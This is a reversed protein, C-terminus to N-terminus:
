NEEKLALRLASFAHHLRSKVTGEPVGLIAGIEAYTRGEVEHMLVSLRHEESLGALARNLADRDAVDNEHSPAAPDIWAEVGALERQSKSAIRSSVRHAIGFLWSELPAEGRYRRISKQMTVFTEQAADSARDPGLRRACFAHIAPYHLRVIKELAERGGRKAEEILGSM